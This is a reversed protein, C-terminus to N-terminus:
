KGGLSHDIISHFVIATGKEGIWQAPFRYIGFGDKDKGRMKPVLQGSILRMEHIGPDLVTRGWQLGSPIYEAYLATDIVKGVNDM